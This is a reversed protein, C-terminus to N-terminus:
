ATRPPQWITSLFSSSLPNNYYFYLKKEAGFMPRPQLVIEQVPASPAYVASLFSICNDHAKFPLKMDKDHTGPHHSEESYHMYLFQTFTIKSDEQQHEMYHQVLIPLKLM